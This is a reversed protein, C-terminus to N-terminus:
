TSRGVEMGTWRDLEVMRVGQLARDGLMVM